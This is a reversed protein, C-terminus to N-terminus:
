SKVQKTFEEVAARALRFDTETMGSSVYKSGFLHMHAERDDPQVGEPIEVVKAYNGDRDFYYYTNESISRSPQKEKIDEVAQMTAQDTHIGLGVYHRTDVGLKTKVDKLQIPGLGYPEAQPDVGENYHEFSMHRAGLTHPSNIGMALYIKSGRKGKFNFRSVLTGDPTLEDGTYRDVAEVLDEEMHAIEQAQKNAEQPELKKSSELDLLGKNLLDSIQEVAPSFGSEEESM